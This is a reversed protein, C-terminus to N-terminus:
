RWDMQSFFSGNAIRTVIGGRSAVTYMGCAGLIALTEGDPSWVLSPDDEGLDTVKQLATGDTHITWIDIPPGHAAAPSPSWPWRRGGSCEPAIVLALEPAVAGFALRQSDPSFRPWRVGAFTAADGTPLLLRRDSGDPAATWIGPPHRGSSYTVYAIRSGDPAVAPYAADEILPTRAGTGPDILDLSLTSTATGSGMSPELVAAYLGTGDATWALGEIRGGPQSAQFVTKAPGGPTGVWITVTPPQSSGASRTSVVAVRTGDPSWRPYGLRTGPAASQVIQETGSEMDRHVLEGRRILLVGRDPMNPNVGAPSGAARCAGAAGALVACVALLLPRLWFGPRVRTM